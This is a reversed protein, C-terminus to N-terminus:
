LLPSRLHSSSRSSLRAAVAPSASRSPSWALSLSGAPAEESVSPLTSSSTCGRGASSCPGTERLRALVSPMGPADTTLPPLTVSPGSSPASTRAATSFARFAGAPNEDNRLKRGAASSSSHRSGSGCSRSSARPRRGVSSAVNEAFVFVSPRVASLCTWHSPLPSQRFSADLAGRERPTSLNVPLGEALRRLYETPFFDVAVDQCLYTFATHLHAAPRWEMYRRHPVVRAHCRM